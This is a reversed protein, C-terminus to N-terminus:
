KINNMKVNLKITSRLLDAVERALEKVQPSVVIDDCGNKWHRLETQAEEPNNTNALHKPRHHAPLTVLLLIALL